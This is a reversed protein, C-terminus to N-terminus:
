RVLDKSLTGELDGQLSTNDVVDTVIGTGIMGTLGIYAKFAHWWRANVVYRVICPVLHADARRPLPPRWVFVVWFAHLSHLSAWGAVCPFNAPMRACARLRWALMACGVCWVEGEQPERALLPELQAKRAELAALEPADM